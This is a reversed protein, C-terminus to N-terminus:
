KGALTLLDEEASVNQTDRYRSTDKPMVAERVIRGKRTPCASSSFSFIKKKTRISFYKGQPDKPLSILSCWYM